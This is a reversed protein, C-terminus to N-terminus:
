TGSNIRQLRRKRTKRHQRRSKRWRLMHQHLEFNDGGYVSSTKAMIADGLYQFNELKGASISVARFPPM